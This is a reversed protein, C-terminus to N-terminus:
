ALRLTLQSRQANEMAHAGAAELQAGKINIYLPCLDFHESCIEFAEDLNRMNLSESCRPHNSNIYPCSM